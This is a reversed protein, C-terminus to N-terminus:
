SASGPPPPSGCGAMDLSWDFAYPGPDIGRGGVGIARTSGDALRVLLVSPSFGGMNLVKRQGTTPDTCSGLVHMETSTVAAHGPNRVDLEALGVRVEADCYSGECAVIGGIPWTDVVRDSGGCSAVAAAALLAAAAAAGRRESLPM